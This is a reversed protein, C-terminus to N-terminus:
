WSGGRSLASRTDRSWSASATNRVVRHHVDLHQPLTRPEPEGADQADAVRDVDVDGLRAPEAHHHSVGGIVPGGGDGLVREAQHEGEGPCM